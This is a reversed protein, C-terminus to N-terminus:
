DVLRAFEELTTSYYIYQRPLLYNTNEDGMEPHIMPSDTLGFQYYKKVEEIVRENYKGYPYALAFVAKGTM